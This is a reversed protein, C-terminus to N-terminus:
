YSLSMLLPISIFFLFSFFLFSFFLFSFFLFSFFFVEIPKKYSKGKLVKNVFVGPLHIHNPDLTGAPVIEEVEAITYNGAKAM